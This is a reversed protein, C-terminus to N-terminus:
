SNKCKRNCKCYKLCKEGLTGCKCNKCNDTKCGCTTLVVEMSLANSTSMQWLPFFKIVNESDMKWGWLTPSPLNINALCEAWLWGSQYVSIKIHQLLANRSLITGRINPDASEIVIGAKGSITSQASFTKLRNLIGSKTGPYLQLSNQSISQAIGFLENSFM